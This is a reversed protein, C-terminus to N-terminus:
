KNKPKILPKSGQPKTYIARDPAISVPLVNSPLKDINKKPNPVMGAIKVNVIIPEKTLRLKLFLILNMVFDM